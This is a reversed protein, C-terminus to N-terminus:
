AGAPGAPVKKPVAVWGQETLVSRTLKGEALLKMAQEYSMEKKANVAAEAPREPDGKVKSAPVIPKPKAIKHARGSQGAAIAKDVNSEGPETAGQAAVEVDAAAAEGPARVQKPTKKRM